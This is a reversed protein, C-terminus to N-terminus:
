RKRKKGGKGDFPNVIKFEDSDIDLKGRLVSFSIIDRTYYQWSSSPKADEQTGIIITSPVDESEKKPVAALVNAGALAIIEKLDAFGSKGVEKRASATWAINWGDFVKLGEKGRRVAETMSVDWEAEREPDRPFYEVMNQLKAQKASDVVWSDTILDKGLLVASILKASKKLEKGVCLVTCEAVTQVIQVGNKALFKTFNASDGVNTSSAFVVRIGPNKANLPSVDERVASRTSRMSSTSEASLSPSATHRHVSISAQSSTRPKRHVAPTIPPAANPEQSSSLSKPHLVPSLRSGPAAVRITKGFLSDQSEDAPPPSLRRKKPKPADDDSDTTSDTRPNAHDGVIQEVMFEQPAEAATDQQESTAMALKEPNDMNALPSAQVITGTIISDIGNPRQITDNPLLPPAKLTPPSEPPALSRQGSANRVTGLVARKTPLTPLDPSEAKGSIATEGVRRFIPSPQPSKATPSSMVIPDSRIQSTQMQSVQQSYDEYNSGPMDSHGEPVISFSSDGVHFTEGPRLQLMIKISSTIPSDPASARLRLGLHASSGDFAFGLAAVSVEPLLAELFM